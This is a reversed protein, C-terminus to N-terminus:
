RNEFVNERLRPKEFVLKPTPIQWIYCNHQGYTTAADYSKPWPTMVVNQLERSSRGAHRSRHFTKTRYIESNSFKLDLSPLGLWLAMNDYELPDKREQDLGGINCSM